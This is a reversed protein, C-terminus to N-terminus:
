QGIQLGYYAFAFRLRFDRETFPDYTFGDATRFDPIFHLGMCPLFVTELKGFCIIDKQSIQPKVSSKESRM